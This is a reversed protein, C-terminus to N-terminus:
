GTTIINTTVRRKNLIDKMLLLPSKTPMSVPSFERKAIEKNSSQHHTSTDNECLFIPPFGGTPRNAVDRLIKGGFM